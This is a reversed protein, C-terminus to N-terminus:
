EFLRYQYESYVATSSICKTLQGKKMEGNHLLEFKQDSKAESQPIILSSLQAIAPIDPLFFCRQFHSSAKQKHILSIAGPESKASLLEVGIKVSQDEQVEIWRIAAMLWPASDNNSNERLILPDGVKFKSSPPLELCYGGASTNIVLASLPKYRGSETGGTNNFDIVAEVKETPLKEKNKADLDKVGSWVDDKDPDFSNQETDESKMYPAILQNFDQGGSLQYHAASFGPCIECSQNSAQRKHQRRSIQSWASALHSILLSSLISNSEPKDRLKGLHNALVRADIGIVDKTPKDPDPAAYHMGEDAALNVAFYIKLGSKPSIKCHSSWIALADWTQRIEEPTLKNYRSRSLLLSQKYIDVISLRRKKDCHLDTQEFDLLKFQEAIRYLTHLELWFGKPTPRYLQCDLLYIQSEDAFARHCAKALIDGHQKHDLCSQVIARYVTALKQLLRNCLEFYEQQRSDFTITRELYRQHIDFSATISPSRLKEALQFHLDPQCDLRAIENLANVLSNGTEILDTIPLNKQWTEAAQLHTKVDRSNCFSLSKQNRAPLNLQIKM